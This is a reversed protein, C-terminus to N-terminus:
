ARTRARHALVPVAPVRLLRVAVRHAPCERAPLSPTTARALLRLHTAARARSAAPRVVVELCARARRSPTTVPVLPAPVLRLAPRIPAVKVHWLRRPPLHRPLPQELRQPRPRLHRLRLHRPRLHRPRLHRPRLCGPHLRWRVLPLGLCTRPQRPQRLPLRSWLLLLPRLPPQLLWLPPRRLPPLLSLPPLLRRLVPSSQRSRPRPRQRVTRRM